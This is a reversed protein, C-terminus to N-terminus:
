GNDERLRRHKRDESSLVHTHNIEHTVINEINTNQLNHFHTENWIATALQKAEEENEANVEALFWGSTKILVQYEKM